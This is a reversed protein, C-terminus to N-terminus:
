RGGERARLASHVLQVAWSGAHVRIGVARQRDTRWSRKSPKKCLHKCIYGNVWPVLCLWRCVNLINQVYKQVCMCECVGHIKM